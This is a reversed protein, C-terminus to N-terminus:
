TVQQLAVIRVKATTAANGSLLITGSALAQATADDGGLVLVRVTMVTEGVSLKVVVPEDALLLLMCCDPLTVAQDSVSPGIKLTQDSKVELGNYVLPDKRASDVDVEADTGGDVLSFLIRLTSDM